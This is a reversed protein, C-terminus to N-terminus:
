RIMLLGSLECLTQKSVNVQLWGNKYSWNAFQRAGSFSYSEIRKPATNMRWRLSGQSFPILAVTGATSLDEDDQSILSWLGRAQLFPVSAVTDKITLATLKEKGGIMEVRGWTNVAPPRKLDGPFSTFWRPKWVTRKRHWRNLAMRRLMFPTAIDDGNEGQMPLTAAPIGIVATNMLIDDDDNWDYSSSGHIMVGTSGLLSAWISWEQHGHRVDYWLDGQDDLSVIDLWPLWLPSLGYYLILTSSDASRASEAIIRLLELSYREGRYQPDRPVGMNPNPLAYGFDLKLVRPHSSKLLQLTRQRLFARVKASSPDMCYYGKADPSFNWNTRIPTGATDLILDDATLGAAATDEIWGITEWNGTNLVSTRMAALQTRYNPFRVTDWQGSGQSSEWGDDMVLVDAKIKTAFANEASLDYSKKRWDGWTNWVTLTQEASPKRSVHFSRIYADFAEFANSGYTLRVLEKWERHSAGAGWLDERYLYQFCGHAAQLRFTLAADPLSGAGLCIWGPPGGMGAFLMPKPYAAGYPAGLSPGFSGLAVTSSGFDWNRFFSQATGEKAGPICYGPSEWDPLFPRDWSNAIGNANRVSAGIYMEVIEPIPSTWDIQLDTFAIHDDRRLATLSGCGFSDFALSLRLTDAGVAASKVSAHVYQFGKSTKLWFAPLLSGTWFSNDSSDEVSAVDQALQRSFEYCGQKIHWTQANIYLPLLFILCVAKLMNQTSRHLYRSVPFHPDWM